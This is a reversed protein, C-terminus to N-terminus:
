DRIEDHKQPDFLCICFAPDMQLRSELDCSIKLILKKTNKCFNGNIKRYVGMYILKELIRTLLAIIVLFAILIFNGTFLSFITLSGVIM